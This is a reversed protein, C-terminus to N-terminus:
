SGDVKETPGLIMMKILKECWRCCNLKDRRLQEEIEDKESTTNKLKERGL